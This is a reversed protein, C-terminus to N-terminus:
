GNGDGCKHYEALRLYEDRGHIIWRSREGDRLPRVVKAPSGLVMSGPPIKSGATVLAGAGVISGEGIVANDMVIAGMGILCNDEITCGHLLVRHGVTIGKGLRTTSIGGTSHAITGDQINTQSGIIIAGQDGRLIVGPWISVESGIVVEGIIVSASDIYATPHIQPSFQQYTRIDAM